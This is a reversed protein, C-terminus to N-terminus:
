SRFLNVQTTSTAKLFTRVTLFINSFATSKQYCCCTKNQEKRLCDTKMCTMFVYHLKLHNSEFSATNAM